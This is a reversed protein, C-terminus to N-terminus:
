LLFLREGAVMIAAVEEGGPTGPALDGELLRANGLIVTLLNNFDHAIGGALMGLAEPKQAQFLQAQLYQREEAARRRGRVDRMARTVFLRDSDAWVSFSIEVAIDEGAKSRIVGEFLKGALDKGEGARIM